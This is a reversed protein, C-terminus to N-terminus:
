SLFANLFNGKLFYYKKKIKQPAPSKFRPGSLPLEHEAFWPAMPVIAQKQLKFILKLYNLILISLKRNQLIHKLIGNKFNDFFIKTM